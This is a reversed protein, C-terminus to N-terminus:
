KKMLTRNRKLRKVNDDIDAFHANVAEEPSLNYQFYMEFEPIYKNQWEQNFLCDFPLDIQETILTKVEAFFDNFTM